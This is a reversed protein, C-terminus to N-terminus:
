CPICNLIHNLMAYHHKKLKMLLINSLESSVPKMLSFYFVAAAVTKNLASGLGADATQYFHGTKPPGECWRNCM